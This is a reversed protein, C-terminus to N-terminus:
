FIFTILIVFSLFLLISDLKALDSYPLVVTPINAVLRTDVKNKMQLM